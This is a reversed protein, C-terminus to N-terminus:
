VGILIIIFIKLIVIFPKCVFFTQIDWYCVYRWLVDYLPDICVSQNYLSTQTADTFSKCSGDSRSIMLCKMSSGAGTMPILGLCSRNAVISSRSLTHANILSEDIRLYTQSGSAGIWTARRGHKSGPFLSTINLWSLVSLNLLVNKFM